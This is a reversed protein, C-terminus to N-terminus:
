VPGLWFKEGLIDEITQKRGFVELRFVPHEETLKIAPPAVLARQIRKLSVPLDDVKVPTADAAPASAAPPMSGAPQQAALVVLAALIAATMHEKSAAHHSGATQ